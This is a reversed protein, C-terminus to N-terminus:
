KIRTQLICLISFFFQVCIQIPEEQGLIELFTYTKSRVKLSLPALFLSLQAWVVLFSSTKLHKQEIFTEKVQNGPAYHVYDMLKGGSRRHLPLSVLDVLQTALALLGCLLPLLAVLSGKKIHDLDLNKFCVKEDREM